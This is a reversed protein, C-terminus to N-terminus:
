QGRERLRDCAPLGGRRAVRPAGAARRRGPGRAVAARGRRGDLHRRRARGQAPARDRGSGAEGPPDHGGGKLRGLVAWNHATRSPDAQLAQPVFVDTGDEFDFDPPLVGVVTYLGNTTRLPIAALDEAGGLARLWYGHRIIAVPAGRGDREEALFVRGRIPSVGLVEFFDGSVAAFRVRETETGTAVSQAGGSYEAIGELTRNRERLDAFNPHSFNARTVVDGAAGSTHAPNIQFLRVLEQAETYPLPRLLVGEVVSFVATTAGIGLALTGVAVAAFGPRRRLQRLAYRLDQKLTDM